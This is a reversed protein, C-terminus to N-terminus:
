KKKAQWKGQMQGAFDYEGEIKGLKIIGSLVLAGQPTELKLSIKDGELTGESIEMSGQASETMGTVKGGEVKIKLTFPLSTGQVDAEADWDGSPDASAEAPAEAPMMAAVRKLELTGTQGALEWDGVIKDDNFMANVTGENGGADFKMMIKGDAFTGATIPAPGQPTEISGSLKGNENKIQVTIPIDGISASKAVGEYKGSIPDSGAFAAGVAVMLAIVFLSAFRRLQM